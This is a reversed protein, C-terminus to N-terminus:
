NEERYYKSQTEFLHYYVGKQALLEQHTGQEIITKQDILIIRDCFQTSALRHSVFIMTQKGFTTPLSQYFQHEAQADLASTPEDLIYIPRGYSLARATVFKQLQGGSLMLGEENLYRTMEKTELDKANIVEEDLGVARLYDVLEEARAEQGFVLNDKITFPFVNIEQFVPAFLSFYEKQKFLAIDQGNFTIKGETPSILRMLLKLFTTKGVGNLGVLAVKEGQKLTFNLHEYLMEKSQPYGFSVDEFVIEWPIQNPVSMGSQDDTETNLFDFMMEFNEHQSLVQTVMDVSAVLARNLQLLLVSYTALEALGIAQAYYQYILYIYLCLDRILQYGDDALWVLFTYFSGQTEAKDIKDLLSGLKKQYWTKLQFVRIEKANAVDVGVDGLYWFERYLPNVKRSLTHGYDAAKVSIFLYVIYWILVFGALWPSLSVLSGAAICVIAVQGSLLGLQLYFAQVGTISSVSRYITWANNQHNPHEYDSLPIELDQKMIRYLFDYRVRNGIPTFLYKMWANVGGSVILTSFVWVLKIFDVQSHTVMELIIGPTQILIFAYLGLSLAYIVVYVFYRKDIQWVQRMFQKFNNLFRQTSKM